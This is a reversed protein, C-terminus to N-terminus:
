NKKPIPLRIRSKKNSITSSQRPISSQKQLLNEQLAIRTAAFPTYSIVGDLFAIDAEKMISRHPIEYAIKEVRHPFNGSELFTVNSHEIVEIEETKRKQSGPGAPDHVYFTIKNSKIKYGVLSTFHGGVRELGGDQKKYWGVNIIANSLGHTSKLMWELEPYLGVRYSETKIGMYEIAISYGKSFFFKKIGNMLRWSSVGDERTDIYQESSINLMLDNANARQTILNPFGNAEWFFLFNTISATGCFSKGGQPLISAYQNIDPIYKIKSTNEAKTISGNKDRHMFHQNSGLNYNSESKKQGDDYWSTLLGDRKGDKYTEESSKQGNEYWYTTLGDQEGDKYNSERRKQGNEYWSTLLGDPKGDKYNEELEEQGNDYYYVVKGSGEKFNTKSCRQGNPLWSNFSIPTLKQIDTVLQYAMVGNQYWKNIVFINDTGKDRSESFLKTGNMDWGLQKLVRGNKFYTIIRLYGEINTDLYAWTVPIFDETHEIWKSHGTYLDSSNEDVESANSDYWSDDFFFQTYKDTWDPVKDWFAKEEPSNYTFDSWSINDDDKGLCFAASTTLTISFILNRKFSMIQSFSDIWYFDILSLYQKFVRGFQM